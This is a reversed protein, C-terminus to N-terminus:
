AELQHVATESADIMNEGFISRNALRQQLVELESRCRLVV